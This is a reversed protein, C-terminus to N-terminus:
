ATLRVDLGGLKRATASEKERALELLCFREFMAPLRAVHPWKSQVRGQVDERQTETLGQWVPFWLTYQERPRRPPM